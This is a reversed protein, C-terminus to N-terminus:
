PEDTFLSSADNPILPAQVMIGQSGTTRIQQALFSRAAMNVVRDRMEGEPLADFPGETEGGVMSQATVSVALMLLTEVFMRGPVGHVHMHVIGMAPGEDDPNHDMDVESFDIHMHVFHEDEETPEPVFDEHAM